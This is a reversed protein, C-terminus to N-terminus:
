RERKPGRSREFVVCVLIGSIEDLRLQNLGDVVTSPELVVRLLALAFAVAEIFQRGVLLVKVVSFKRLHRREGGGKLVKGLLTHCVARENKM